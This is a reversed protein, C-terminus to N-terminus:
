EFIITGRPNHQVNEIRGEKCTFIGGEESCFEYTATKVDYCITSEKESVTIYHIDEGCPITIREKVHYKIESVDDGRSLAVVNEALLDSYKPADPLYAKMGGYGSVIAVAAISLTTLIKKKNM